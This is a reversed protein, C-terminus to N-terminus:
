SLTSELGGTVATAILTRRREGLMEIMFILGKSLQDILSLKKDIQAVIQIQEEVPPLFVELTGFRDPELRWQSTRIGNSMSLYATTLLSNRLLLNLYDSSEHHTPTFVVYDPSTIGRAQSIGLSGQWAKM